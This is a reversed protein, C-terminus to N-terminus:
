IDLIAACRDVADEISSSELLAGMCAFFRYRGNPRRLLFFAVRAWQQEEVQRRGILPDRRIRIEQLDDTSLALGGFRLFQITEEPHRNYAEALIRVVAKHIVEHQYGIVERLADLGERPWTVVVSNMTQLLQLAEDIRNASLFQRLYHSYLPFDDHTEKQQRARVYATYKSQRRERSPRLIGYPYVVSFGDEFIMDFADAFGRRSGRQLGPRYLLVTPWDRLVREEYDIFFDDYLRGCLIHSYVLAAQFFDIRVPSTKDSFTEFERVWLEITREFDNVASMAFLAHCFHYEVNSANLDMEDVFPGFAALDPSTLVDGSEVRALIETFVRRNPNAFFAAIGEATANFVLRDSNALVHRALQRREDASWTRGALRRFVPLISEVVASYEAPHTNDPGLQRLFELARGTQLHRPLSQEHLFTRYPDVADFDTPRSGDGLFRRILKDAAYIAAETEATPEAPARVSALIPVAVDVPLNAVIQILPRLHSRIQPHQEPSRIASRLFSAAFPADADALDLIVERIFSTLEHDEASADDGTPTTHFAHDIIAFHTNAQLTFFMRAAAHARANGATKALFERLGYVTELTPAAPLALGLSLFYEQLRDHAFGLFGDRVAVVASMDLAARVIEGRREAPEIDIARFTGQGTTLSRLAVAALAHELTPVDVDTAHRALRADMVSKYIRASPGMVGIAAGTDAVASLLFPDRLREVAAPSLSNIDIQTFGAENLRQVADVLEDDSLPGVAIAAASEAVTSESWLSYRLQVPDLRPLVSNWTEQRLTAVVKVASSHQPLFYCLRILNRFLRVCDAVDNGFENLGDIYLVLQRENSRLWPELEHLSVPVPAGLGGIQENLYEEIDPGRLSKAKILLLQRSRNNRWLEHLRIGISTKGFGSPGVVVALSQASGLFRNISSEVAVRRAFLHPAVVSKRSGYELLYERNTYDSRWELLCRVFTPRTPRRTPHELVPRSIATVFEDFSCLIPRVRGHLESVLPAAPNPPLPAVWYVASATQRLAGAVISALQVDYGGYGAFIVDQTALVEILLDRIAGDYASDALEDATLQLVSRSAIDGHLKLYPVLAPTHRDGTIYPRAVGAAFVQFVNRGLERQATELMIDFNTTVIADIGGEEALLVLLRYSDSPELRDMDRVIREVLLAREDPATAAAFLRDFEGTIAQPNDSLFLRRHAVQGLMRRKFELFSVGGSSIDAGAGLFLCIKKSHTRHRRARDFVLATVTSLALESQEDM